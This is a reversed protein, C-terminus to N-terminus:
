KEGKLFEKVFKEAKNELLKMREKGKPLKERLERMEKLFDVVKDPIVKQLFIRLHKSFAPSSGSTSVAITLDGKKIYSPYIFDCYDLSDVSNVFVRKGRAEQFIEKQVNVDDVAVIVILFGELDGKRYEREKFSLNHKKILEMARQCFKPSILTINETFDLMHSLKDSAIKGGGVILVKENKLNLFLPFFESM